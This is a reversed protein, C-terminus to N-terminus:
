DLELYLKIIDFKNVPFDKVKTLDDLSKYGERLTRQEIINHAIDYDIYKIKVLEDRTTINLRVKKIPVPTKVAFLNTIRQIVEPSLGYIENLEVTSVFGNQRSRFKVIRQSLKEGIGIVKQLQVITALNLDVKQEHTKPSNDKKVFPKFKNPKPQTVWQPFKFNPAMVKLLSDSIKTIKQFEKASNVWKNQARFHLLRDIEENTMGLKYGKYDTIFNPNYPYIKPKSTEAKVRKLSDIEAKFFFLAENNLALEKEIDENIKTDIFFSVCQLIVILLLLSFIGNRRQKSFQFHSKLKKM